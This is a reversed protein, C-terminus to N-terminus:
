NFIRCLGFYNPPGGLTPFYLWFTLKVKVLSSGLSQLSAWRIDDCIDKHVEGKYVLNWKLGTKILKVLSALIVDLMAHLDQASHVPTKGNKTNNEKLEGEDDMMEYYPIAGNAHGSDVLQHQGKSKVKTPSPICGITGCFLGQERAKRTHMGITIKVVTIPNNVFQGAPQAM